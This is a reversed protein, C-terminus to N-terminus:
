GGLLTSSRGTSRSLAGQDVSQSLSPKSTKKRYIKGGDAGIDGTEEYNDRLDKQKAEAKLVRGLANPHKLGMYGKLAQPPANEVIKGM